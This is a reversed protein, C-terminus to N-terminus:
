VLIMLGGTILTLPAVVFNFGRSQWDGISKFTKLAYLSLAFGTIILLIAVIINM